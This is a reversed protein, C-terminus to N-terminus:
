SVFSPTDSAVVPNPLPLSRPSLDREKYLLTFALCCLRPFLLLFPLLSGFTFHKKLHLSSSLYLLINIALYPKFCNAKPFSSICAYTCTPPISLSCIPAPRHPLPTGSCYPTSPIWLELRPSAKMQPPHSYAHLLSPTFTCFNPPKLPEHKHGCRPPLTM